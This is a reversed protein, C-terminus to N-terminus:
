LADGGDAVQPRAMGHHCPVWRVHVLNRVSVIFQRRYYWLRAALQMIGVEIGSWTLNETPLTANRWFGIPISSRTNQPSSYCYRLPYFISSDNQFESFQSLSYPTVHSFATSHTRATWTFTLEALIHLTAFSMNPLYSFTSVGRKWSFLDFLSVRGSTQIKDCSTLRYTVLLELTVGWSLFSCCLKYDNMLRQIIHIFAPWTPLWEQSTTLFGSYVANKPM